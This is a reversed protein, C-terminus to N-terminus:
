AMQGETWGDARRDTEWDARPLVKCDMIILLDEEYKTYGNVKIPVHVRKFTLNKHENIHNQADRASQCKM